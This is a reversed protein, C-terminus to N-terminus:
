EEGALTDPAAPPRRPPATREPPLADAARLLERATELMAQKERDSLSAAGLVQLFAPAHRRVLAMDVPMQDPDFLFALADRRGMRMARGLADAAALPRDHAIANLCWYLWAQPVPGWFRLRTRDDVFVLADAPLDALDTTWRIEQGPAALLRPGWPGGLAAYLPTPLPLREERRHFRPQLLGIVPARDPPVARLATVAGHSIAAARVEPDRPLGDPGRRATRWSTGLWALATTAVLVPLVVNWRPRKMPFFYPVLAAALTIVAPVAAALALYPQVRTRLPLAPLLTLLAAALMGAPLRDGERWRWRAWSAWLIWALLGGLGVVFSFKRLLVPGPSALWWGYQALNVAVAGADLTFLGAPGHDFGRWIWWAELLALPVLLLAVSRVRRRAAADAAPLLWLVAPLLLANEKALIAGAGALLGTVAGVRGGALCREVALLGLAVGLLEQAGAAWRLPTFALPSLATLLGAALATAPGRGLRRVIVVVLAAAVGFLALRTWAWPHPDTGFLPYLLDWYLRRSLWRAAGGEPRGLGAAGALLQWDDDHWWAGLVPLHGAIAVLAVVPPWWRSAPRHAGDDISWGTRPDPTM